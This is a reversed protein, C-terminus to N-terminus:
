RGSHKRQVESGRVNKSEKGTPITFSFCAGEGERSECWIRGGHAQVAANCFALGLGASDENGKSMSNFDGFIMPLVEAPIGTGDDRCSFLISSSEDDFSAGLLVHTGSPNHKLGNSILNTLVRRLVRCDARVTPCAKSIEGISVQGKHEPLSFDTAAEVLLQGVPVEEQRLRGTEQLRAFDLLDGIEGTMQHGQRRIRQLAMLTEGTPPGERGEILLNTFGLICGLHTKLDHVMFQATRRNSHELRGLQENQDKLLSAQKRLEAQYLVNHELERAVVDRQRKITSRQYSNVVALFGCLLGYVLGMPFMGPEFSDLVPGWIEQRRAEGMIHAFHPDLWQFIVMSAPHLIVFGFAFGLFADRAVLGAM